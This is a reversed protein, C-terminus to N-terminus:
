FKQFILYLISNLIKRDKSITAIIESNIHADYIVLDDTSDCEREFSVPIIKWTNNDEINAQKFDKTLPGLVKPSHCINLFVHPKDLYSRSPGQGPRLIENSSDFEFLKIDAEEDKTNAIEIVKLKACLFVKSEIGNTDRDKDKEKKIEEKGESIHDNVFKDYEKPDKEAMDDLMKWYMDAKGKMGPESMADQFVKMMDAMEEPNPTPMGGKEGGFMNMM